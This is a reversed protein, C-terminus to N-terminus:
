PQQAFNALVFGVKKSVFLKLELLKESSFLFVEFIFHLFYEKGFKLM